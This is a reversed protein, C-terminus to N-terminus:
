RKSQKRIWKLEEEGFLEKYLEDMNELKKKMNYKEAGGRFSQYHQRIALMEIRGDDLMGKYKRLKRRERALRQRTLRIVVRGTKTLMMRKKLFPFSGKDLRVIQTRRENITIGLKKCEERIEKLCKRLYDVDQHILYSDDMYRGYGKIHLQEKIYRDIPTPLAIACTQSIESGLGLGQSGEFSRVVREAMQYVKDDKIQRRLMDLMTNRNISGFYNKFDILLVGGTRGHRRYHRQLHIKLREMAFETGKGKISASNDYVLKPLIDPKLCNNNLSKQVVRESIHVSQIHRIKGRERITFNNYGKGKYTGALMQQRLSAVWRLKNIEFTQVSSKWTVGKRCEKAAEMLNEFEAAKEFATDEMKGRVADM